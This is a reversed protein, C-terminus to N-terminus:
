ESEEIYIIGCIDRSRVWVKAEDSVKIAKGAKLLYGKEESQSPATDYNVLVDSQGKNQIVVTNSPAISTEQYVDVWVDNNITLDDLTAM